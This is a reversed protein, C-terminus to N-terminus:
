MCVPCQSLFSLHSDRDNYDCLLEDGVEIRRKATFILVHPLMHLEIVVAKL